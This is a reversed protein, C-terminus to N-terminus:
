NKLIAKYHARMKAVKPAVVFQCYPTNPNHVYYDQHYEEAPYFATLPTVQTVVPASYLHAAQVAQIAKEAEARQAPNTYFIMSRYSAGTDEGQRDQTTPDHVHFFVGLLDSYSIINPDFVVQITEAHGTTESCVQEYTPHAAHGGAYGAEVKDVGKLQSFMANMSWFCGGAFYAVQHGAPVPLPAAPRADAASGGLLSGVAKGPGGLLYSWAGLVLGLLLVTRLLAPLARRKRAPPTNMALNETDPTSGTIRTQPVSNNRM